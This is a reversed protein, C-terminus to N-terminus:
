NKGVFSVSCKCPTRTLAMKQAQTQSLFFVILYRLSRQTKTRTGKDETKTYQFSKKYQFKASQKGDKQEKCIQQEKARMYSPMKLVNLIGPMNTGHLPKTPM